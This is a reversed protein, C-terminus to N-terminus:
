SLKYKREYKRIEDQLNDWSQSLQDKIAPEDMIQSARKAYQYFNRKRGRGGHHSFRLHLKRKRIMNHRPVRKKKASARASQRAKRADRKVSNKLNRYFKAISAGRIFARQGDFEFGLYQLPNDCTLGNPTAFFHSVSVKDENISLRCKRQIGLLISRKIYEKDKPSCIVIIDDSYRRYIAGLRDQVITKIWIDFELMYLNSLFASIPTGQPIGHYGDKNKFPHQKIYGKRAIRKRFEAADKCFSTIKKGRLRQPSSIGFEKLVRYYEVYSARTLSKFVNYHDDPLSVDDLLKCWSKKLLKHNMTDFFKSVDFTLAVCDKREKIIKFVDDAFHINNKNSCSNPVPIRRYASICDSLGNFEQLLDEYLPSLKEHVYYAYIVADIHTSYFIHRVKANSVKNGDEDVYSHVRKWTKSSKFFTKKYRRSVMERHILPYFGHSAVNDPNTVYSHLFKRAEIDHHPYKSTFHVYGRPKLWENKQKQVM